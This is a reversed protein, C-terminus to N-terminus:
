RHRSRTPFQALTSSSRREVPKCCARWDDFGRAGAGLGFYFAKIDANERLAEAQGELAIRRNELDHGYDALALAMAANQEALLFRVGDKPNLRAVAAFIEEAGPAAGPGDVARRARDSGPTGDARGLATLQQGRGSVIGAQAHRRGAAVLRRGTM